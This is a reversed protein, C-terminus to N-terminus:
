HDQFAKSPGKPLVPKRFTWSKILGSLAGTWVAAPYILSYYFVASVSFVSGKARYFARYLKRNVFANVTWILSLPMLMSAKGSVLGITSLIGTLLWSAGNVKLETSATGSDAFLDRNRLSYLIWYKTKRIANKLSKGLSYNFIHQVQLGPDIILGYGARRLRHSLEVDELLPLFNESFGGIKKFTEAYLVFAHTALYDPRKCNKTEAYNIFISQFVSFFRNDHPMQTYTGGLVVDASLESLTKRVLSLSDKPLLCDADTFFLVDGRSHLAGLNRAKSPGSHEELLILRCPFKKIIDPSNDESCDDVVVVEFNRDDLAFAAALCKDITTGKNRNPIIISILAEM